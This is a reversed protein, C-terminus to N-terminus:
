PQLVLLLRLLLGASGHKKPVQTPKTPVEIYLLVSSMGFRTKQFRQQKQKKFQQQNQLFTYAHQRERPKITSTSLLKAHDAMCSHNPANANYSEPQINLVGRPYRFPPNMPHHLEKNDPPGPSELRPKVCASHVYMPTTPLELFLVSTPRPQSRHPPTSPLCKDCCRCCCRGRFVDDMVAVYVVAVVVAVAVM